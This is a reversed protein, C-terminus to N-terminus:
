AKKRHMYKNKPRFETACGYSKYKFRRDSNVLSWIKLMNVPETLDRVVVTEDDEVSRCGEKFWKHWELVSSMKMAEGGYAEPLMACTVSENLDSM